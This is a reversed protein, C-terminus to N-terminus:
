AGGRTVWQVFAEQSDTHVCRAPSALLVRGWFSPADELVDTTGDELAAVIESYFKLKQIENLRDAASLQTQVTEPLSEVDLLQKFAFVIELRSYDWGHQLLADMAHSSLSLSSSVGRSQGM